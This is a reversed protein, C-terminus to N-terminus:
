IKQLELLDPRVRTILSLTAITIFGEGIGIIAHIGAMASLVIKLPATGSVSLELACCTASLVLSCWAATFSGIFLGKRGQVFLQVIANIYYGIFGGAVGMNFINAGLATLGGDQFILCQVILVTTMILVSAWPGLLIAILTAGMFHGSTGGGVPFNFMQVAFVFAAMVGLLPIHKDSIKKNAQRVAAGIFVASIGGMVIWTKTDLFGDPIHM